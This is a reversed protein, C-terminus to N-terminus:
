TGQTQLHPWLYRRARFPRFVHHEVPYLYSPNSLCSRHYRSTSLESVVIGHHNRPNISRPFAVLLRQPGTPLYIVFSVVYQLGYIGEGEIVGIGFGARNPGQSYRRPRPGGGHRYNPDNIPQFSLEPSGRFGFGASLLLCGLAM